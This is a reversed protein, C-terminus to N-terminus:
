GAAAHDGEWDQRLLELALSDVYRGARIGTRRLRGCVSFGLGSAFALAPADDEDVWSHVAHAPTDEFLHALMLGAAETGYRHRRSGPAIVLHAFPTLADWWVDSRVHGVVVEHHTIVFAEGNQPTAWGDLEKVIEARSMARHREHEFGRRGSMEWGGLYGAIADLDSEEYPRLRVNEGAYRM